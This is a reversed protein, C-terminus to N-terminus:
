SCPGGNGSFSSMQRSCQRYNEPQDRIALQLSCEDFVIKDPILETWGEQTVIHEDWDSLNVGILACGKFGAGRLRAGRIFVGRFNCRIFTAGQLNANDLRAGQFMTDIFIAGSLNKSRLDAGKLNLATFTKQETTLLARQEPGLNSYALIAKFGDKDYLMASLSGLNFIILVFIVIKRFLM